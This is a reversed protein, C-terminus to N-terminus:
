ALINAKIDSIMMATAATATGTIAAITNKVPQSEM